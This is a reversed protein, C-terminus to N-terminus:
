VKRPAKSHLMILWQLAAVRTAEHENLFQLTLASVAAEYDLTTLQQPSAAGEDAPLLPQAEAQSKNEVSKGDPAADKNAVRTARNSVTSDRREAATLDRSSSAAPPPLQPQVLPAHEVKPVEDSLSMIYEMLSTNVRNAAQRVQEVDNSMAPLVQSLLRPVFLM